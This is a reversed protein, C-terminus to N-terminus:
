LPYNGYVSERLPPKRAHPYIHIIQKKKLGERVARHMDVDIDMAMAMAMAM